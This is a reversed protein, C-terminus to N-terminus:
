YLHRRMDDLQDEIERFAEALLTDHAKEAAFAALDLHNAAEMLHREVEKMSKTKYLYVCITCFSLLTGM